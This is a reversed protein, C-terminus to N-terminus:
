FPSAHFMLKRIKFASTSAIATKCSSLWNVHSEDLVTMMGGAHAVCRRRPMALDFAFGTSSLSGTRAEVGEQASFWM